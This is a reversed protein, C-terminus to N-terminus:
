DDEIKSGKPRDKPKKEKVAEAKKEPEKAKSGQALIMKRIELLEGPESMKTFDEYNVYVRAGQKRWANLIFWIESERAREDTAMLEAIMEKTKNMRDILKDEMAM